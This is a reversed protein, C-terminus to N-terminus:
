AGSAPPSNSPRGFARDREATPNAPSTAKRRASFMGIVTLRPDLSLSNAAALRITRVGPRALLMSSSFPTVL